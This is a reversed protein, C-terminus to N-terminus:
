LLGLDDSDDPAPPDSMELGAGWKDPLRNQLWAMAARVDPPVFKRVTRKKVEGTPHGTKKDLLAEAHTETTYYGLARRLLAAEVKEEPTKAM